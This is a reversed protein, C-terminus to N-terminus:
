YKGFNGISDKISDGAKIIATGDSSGQVVGDTADSANSVSNDIGDQIDKGRGQNLWKDIANTSEGEQRAQQNEKRKEENSFLDQLSNATNSLGGSVYNVSGGTNQVVGGIAAGANGVSNVANGISSFDLNGLANSANKVNKVYNSTTAVVGAASGAAKAGNNLAAATGKAASSLKQGFTKKPAATLPVELPDDDFESWDFDPIDIKFDQREIKLIDVCTNDEECPARNLDNDSGPINPYDLYIGFALKQTTSSDTVFYEIFPGISAVLFLGVAISALHKWSIKNFIAAFAFAVLGFGAIIYVIGRIDNLTLAAKCAILRFVNGSEASCGGLSVNTTAAMSGKLVNQTKVEEVVANPDFARRAEQRLQEENKLRALYAPATENPERAMSITKEGDWTSGSKIEHALQQRSAYGDPIENNNVAIVEDAFSLAKDNDAQWQKGEQSNKYAEQTAQIAKMREAPTMSALDAMYADAEENRSYDLKSDAEAKRSKQTKFRSNSFQFAGTAGQASAEAVVGLLVFSFAFMFSLVVKNRILFKMVGEKAGVVSM